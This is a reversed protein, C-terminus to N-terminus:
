PGACRAVLELIPGGYRELRAPGIGPLTALDARSSPRQRAIAHLTHDPAVVYEPVAAARAVGRRWDLLSALLPGDEHDVARVRRPRPPRSSAPQGLRARARRLGPPPDGTSPPVPTEDARSAAVAALWPSPERPAARGGLVRERAWSLHLTRAARSLAVYLLRREDALESPTTAYSIPVLGRELGCVFVTDYELGKARHFTLLDVSDPADVNGDDSRLTTTLWALFGDASGREGDHALYEHGLTVLVEAHERQEDPMTTADERLDVLHEAFPRGPVQRANATLADLVAAVEPRELFRSTGRVRAPVDARALAEEFLVSQANTRYLVAMTSWPRGAAHADRLAGAVAAAEAADTEHGIVTPAPGDPVSAVVARPMPELVARAAAVIQPTSRYNRDLRVVAAGPFHAAFRSLFEPEAGAFRYIAQDPDGVVCLDDGEGIWARLLRLQVPTVDQFEDVYFHRFRFRQAAAFDADGDLVRVCWWILDDFDVLRRRRKLQEYREYALAMEGLALSPRRRAAVAAAEYGAPQIMRAKAWEIETAVESARTRGDAGRGLMPVLLRAKRALVVPAAKGRDRWARRLQALALAHFTGATVRGGGPLHELRRVLEGAAKRTFTVALVRELAIRGSAAEWAIRRTLVRTKGSGAGALIALPRTPELVAARQSPDLGTLLGTVADPVPGTPVRSGGGGSPGLAGTAVM